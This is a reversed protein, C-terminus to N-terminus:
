EDGFFTEYVEDTMHELFDLGSDKFNMYLIQKILAYRKFYLEEVSLEFLEGGLMEDMKEAPYNEEFWKIVSSERDGEVAAQSAYVKSKKYSVIGMIVFLLCLGGLVVSSLVKSFGSIPLPIIDFAGLIIVILGLGGVLLLTWASSRNEEARDASNMYKAM